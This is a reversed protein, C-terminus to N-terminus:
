PALEAWTENRSGALSDGENGCQTYLWPQRRRRNWPDYKQLRRNVNRFMELAASLDGPTM